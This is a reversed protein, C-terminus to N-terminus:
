PVTCSVLEPDELDNEPYMRIPDPAFSLKSAKDYFKLERSVGRNLKVLPVAPLFLDELSGGSTVELVLPDSPAPREKDFRDRSEAMSSENADDLCTSYELVSGAVCVFLSTLWELIKIYAENDDEDKRITASVPRQMRSELDHSFSRLGTSATNGNHMGLQLSCTEYDEKASSSVSSVSISMDSLTSISMDSLTDEKMEVSFSDNTEPRLLDSRSWLFSTKSCYDPVEWEYKNADYRQLFSSLPIFIDGSVM